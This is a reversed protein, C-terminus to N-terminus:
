TGQRNAALSRGEVIGRMRSFAEHFWNGGSRRIAETVRRGVEEAMKEIDHINASVNLVPNVTLGQVTTGGGGGQVAKGIAASMSAGTPPPATGAVGNRYMGLGTVAAAGALAANTLDKQQGQAAQLGQSVGAVNGGLVNRRMDEMLRGGGGTMKFPDKLSNPGYATVENGNIKLGAPTQFGANPGIGGTTLTQPAGKVNSLFSGFNKNQDVLVKTMIGSGNTMAAIASVYNDRMARTQEIQRLQIQLIETEKKKRENVATVYLGQAEQLKAPDVGPQAQKTEFEKRLQAERERMIQLNEIQLAKEKEMAAVVRYRMEASAKVGMGTSDAIQVLTEAQSVNTRALELNLAQAQSLSKVNELRQRSLEVLKQEEGRQEADLKAIETQKEGESQAIRLVEARRTGFAQVKQEQERIQETLKQDIALRNAAAQMANGGAQDEYQSRQQILSVEAAVKQLRDDYVRTLAEAQQYAKAMREVSVQEQKDKAAQIKLDSVGLEHEKELYAKKAKSVDGDSFSGPKTQNAAEMGEYRARLKNKEEQAQRRDEASLQEEVNLLQRQKEAMAGYQDNAKQVNKLLDDRNINGLLQMRQAVAGVKSSFAEYAENMGEIQLRQENLQTKLEENYMKRKLEVPALKDGMTDAIKQYQDAVDKVMTRQMKLSQTIAAIKDAKQSDSLTKDSQVGETRSKIESDIGSVDKKAKDAYSQFIAQNEANVGFSGGVGVVSKDGATMGYRARLHPDAINLNDKVGPGAAIQALAEEQGRVDGTINGKGMLAQRMAEAAQAKAGASLAETQVDKATRESIDRFREELDKTTGASGSTQITRVADAYAAQHGKIGALEPDQGMLQQLKEGGVDGYKQRGKALLAQIQQLSTDRRQEADLTEVKSVGEATMGGALAAKRKQKYGEAVVNGKEDFEGAYERQARLRVQAERAERLALDMDAKGSFDINGKETEGGVTAALNSGMRLTKGKETSEDAVGHSFAAAAEMFQRQKDQYERQLSIQEKVDGKQEEIDKARVQDAEGGRRLRVIEQEMTTVFKQNATIKQQEGRIADSSLKIQKLTTAQTASTAEDVADSFDMIKGATLMAAITVAPVVMSMAGAAAGGGVGAAGAAGAEAGAAGAAAGGGGGIAGFMRAIGAVNMFGGVLSGLTRLGMGFIELNVQLDAVTGSLKKFMEDHEQIYHDIQKYYDMVRSGMQKLIDEFVQSIRKGAMMGDEIEQKRGRDAGTRQSNQNVFQDVKRGEQLSMQGTAVMLTSKLALQAKAAAGASPDNIRNILREMEPFKQSVGSLTEMLNRMEAANSGVVNKLNLFLREANEISNFNFGSEYASMLSMTEEYTLGTASRLRKMAGEVETIGTGYKSFQSSLSLLQSNYQGSFRAASQMDLSQGGFFGSVRSISSRVSEVTRVLTHFGTNALQSVAALTTMARSAGGAARAEAAVADNRAAAGPAVGGGGGGFGGVGGFGGNMARELHYSIRNLRDLLQNLQADTAM